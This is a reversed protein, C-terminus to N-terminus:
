DKLPLGSHFASPGHQDNDVGRVAFGCGHFFVAVELGISASSGSVFRTERM